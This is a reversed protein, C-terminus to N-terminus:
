FVDGGVDDNNDQQTFINSGDKLQLQQVRGPNKPKDIEAAVALPLWWSSTTLHLHVFEKHFIQLVIFAVIAVNM